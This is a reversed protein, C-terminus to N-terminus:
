QTKGDWKSWDCTVGDYAWIGTGVEPQTRSIRMCPMDEIYFIEYGIGENTTHLQFTGSGGRIGNNCATLSLVLIIGFLIKKMKFKRKNKFKAM